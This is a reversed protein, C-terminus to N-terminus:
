YKDFLRNIKAEIHQKRMSERRTEMLSLQINRKLEQDMYGEVRKLKETITKQNTKNFWENNWLWKTTFPQGSNETFTIRFKYENWKYEIKVSVLYSFKLTEITEQQNYTESIKTM